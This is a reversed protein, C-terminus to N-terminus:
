KESNKTSELRLWSKQKICQGKRWKIDPRFHHQSFYTKTLNTDSYSGTGGEAPGWCWGTAQKEPQSKQRNEITAETYKEFGRGPSRWKSGTIEEVECLFYFGNSPFERKMSDWRYGRDVAIFFFPTGQVAWLWDSWGQITLRKREKSYLQLSHTMHQLDSRVRHTASLGWYIWCNSSNDKHSPAPQCIFSSVLTGFARLCLMKWIQVWSEKNASHFLPILHGGVGQLSWCQVLKQWTSVCM